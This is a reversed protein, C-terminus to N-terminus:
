LLASVSLQFRYRERGESGQLLRDRHFGNEWWSDMVAGEMDDNWIGDLAAVTLTDSLSTRNMRSWVPVKVGLALSLNNKFFRVGPLLYLIDGGSPAFAKGQSAFATQWPTIEPVSAGAWSEELMTRRNWPAINDSLAVNEQPVSLGAAGALIQNRDTKSIGYERDSGIRVFNFELVPDIRLKSKENVYARYTFALNYRFESGFRVRKGDDYRHPDFSIYSIDQVFTLRGFLRTATAGGSFSPSGFGTSMGPDIEGSANKQNANGTPLSMGGYLTFHWDEQDDLSEVEPVLVLDGDYRFGIVGMLSLDATGATNYSHDETKKVNYPVFAYVSLYSELGYGAGTMFFTNTSTEDDREPSYREFNAHDVKAYALGSGKPLTASTSSEVPAGPGLLGAVGLSAVGHHALLPFAPFLFFSFFGQFLVARIRRFGYKKKM